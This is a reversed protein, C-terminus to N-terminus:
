PVVELLCAELWVSKGRWLVQAMPTQSAEELRLVVVPPEDEPRPAPFMGSGGSPSAYFSRLEYEDDPSSRMLHALSGVPITKATKEEQLSM